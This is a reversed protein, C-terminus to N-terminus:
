KKGEQYIKDVLAIILLIVIITVVIITFITSLYIGIWLAAGGIFVLLPESIKKFYSKLGKWFIKLHKM